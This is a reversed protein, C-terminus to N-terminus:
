TQREVITSFRGQENLKNWNGMLKREAAQIEQLIVDVNAAAFMQAYRARTEEELRCQRGHMVDVLNRTFRAEHPSNPPPPSDYPPPKDWQFVDSEDILESGSYAQQFLFSDPLPLAALAILSQPLPKTNSLSGSTNTRKRGRLKANARANQMRRAAKGRETRSYSIKQQRLAANKEELTFYKARRGM